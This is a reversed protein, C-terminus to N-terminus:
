GLREFSIGNRGANGARLGAVQSGAIGAHIEVGPSLKLEAAAREDRHVVLLSVDDGPARGGAFDLVAGLTSFLVQGAARRGTNRAAEALRETGFEVDRANRCEVVGDTYAILTDGPGLTGRGCAFKADRVAGLMPGGEQLTEVAANRRLLLAAPQGANCYALEGTALEICGLFLATLPAEAQEACLERNIAAMATAPDSQERSCIHLLGILHALWLGASLGKGAIDGVALGIRSGLDFAKFFDGSLHRVPFIEGAMEFEGRRLTRPACLKRQVQAAEFIAQQLEKQERRLAALEAEMERVAPM